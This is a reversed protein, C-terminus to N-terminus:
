LLPYAFTEIRSESTATIWFDRQSYPASSMVNYWETTCVGGIYEGCTKTMPHDPEGANHGMEQNM